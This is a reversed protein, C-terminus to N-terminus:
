PHSHSTTRTPGNSVQVDLDRGTNGRCEHLLKYVEVFGRSLGSYQTLNVLRVDQSRIYISQQVFQMEVVADHGALITIRCHFGLIGIQDLDVLVSSSPRMKGNYSGRHGMGHCSSGFAYQRDELPLYLILTENTCSTKCKYMTSPCVSRRREPFPVVQRESTSQPDSLTGRCLM